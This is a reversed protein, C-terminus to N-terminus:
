LPKVPLSDANLAATSDSAIQKSLNIAWKSIMERQEITLDANKNYWKYSTLPMTNKKMVEEINELKEIAKEKFLSGFESFNLKSKGKNIKGQLYWGIPQINVFWPYDTNNSHCDYCVTNLLSEISDPVSYHNALEVKFNETSINRDPQFLQLVAIIALFSYFIKKAM